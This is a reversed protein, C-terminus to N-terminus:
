LIRKQLDFVYKESYAIKSPKEVSYIAKNKAMIFYADMKDILNIRLKVDNPLM